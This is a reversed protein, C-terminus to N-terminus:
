LPPPPPDVGVARMLGLVLDERWPRAAVQVGIPLGASGPEEGAKVATVPTVGAPFGLLNWLSAYSQGLIVAESTGHHVAPVAYAPCLVADVGAADLAREFRHRYQDIRHALGALGAADLEHGRAADIAAAVRPHMRGGELVRELGAAGDACFVTDFLELAEHAAPPAFELVVAGARAAAAAAEDVARRISPSPTLVGNDSYVGVRVGAVAATSAPLGRRDAAGDLVGLVLDIDRADRAFIGPQNAVMGGGLGLREDLSGELSLRGATPKLAAVGCCHAPIRVSGGVDTGIAVPVVGAAVLAADGGSSGGPSREFSWPNATRGYLPNDTEAFWLLQALNGKAVVVAGAAHLASVVRADRQSLRGALAEVGGSSATGAVDFSEKISIPVGAMPRLRTNSGNMERAAAAAQEYLPVAVANVEPPLRLARAVAAGVMDAAAAEGNGVLDATAAAPLIV